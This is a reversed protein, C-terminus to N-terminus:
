GTWLMALIIQPALIRLCMTLPYVAAYATAQAQSPALSNAFALAPPDTMSGALVGCLTLFNVRLLLRGLLGVLLLPLLTLVAACLMWLLGDGNLLTAVFSRGANVGVCAMFITVGIERLTFVVGPQVHWVLPGISGVRSLVIAAVVPGGALGLTIPAPVGPVYIPVSGILVGLLLGLFIPIIQPFHLASTENGLQAEVMKLNAAQGVCIVYDGFNLRTQGDAVLEVGARILRTITVGYASRFHLDALTRGLARRRTVVLRLSKLPSEMPQLRAASEVGLLNRLSALRDAPGVALIVDGRRLLDDPRAIDQAGEHMIRSIVTGFEQPGPVDRVRLGEPPVNRVEITMTMLQPRAQQRAEAWSRTEKGIDIRCLLRLLGMTLLIGIVGFPYAVAYGLGPATLQAPSAHLAALMQGGAALSPTNTTAGSFLGVVVELPLGVFRYLAVAIAAGLAVIAVALGNLAAGERRFAELFGPGVTIGIAYVFLILGFNQAFDRIEPDIRFGLHGAALGVFLPGAIGLRVPGFRVEGLALGLVAVMAIVVAANASGQGSLLLGAIWGQM